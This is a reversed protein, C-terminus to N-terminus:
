KLAPATKTEKLVDSIDAPRGNVNDENQFGDRLGVRTM